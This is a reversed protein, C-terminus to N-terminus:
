LEVTNAAVSRDLLNQGVFVSGNDNSLHSNRITDFEALTESIKIGRDKLDSFTLTSSAGSSNIRISLGVLGNRISYNGLPLGGIEYTVSRSPESVSSSMNRVLEKMRTEIDAYNPLCSDTGDNNKTNKLTKIKSLNISDKYNVDNSLVNQNDSFDSVVLELKPVVKTYDIKRDHSVYVAYGGDPGDHNGHIPMFIDAVDGISIKKCRKSKLGLDMPTSFQSLYIDCKTGLISETPHNTTRVSTNFGSPMAFGIYLMDGLSFPQDRASPHKNIFNALGSAPGIQIPRFPESLKLINSIIKGEGLAPEWRVQREVLVFSDKVTGQNSNFKYIPLSTYNRAKKYKSADFGFEPSADADFLPMFNSFDLSSSGQKYFTANDNQCKEISPSASSYNEYWHIFFKGLFGNGITNEWNMMNALRSENQSAVFLYPEYKSDLLREKVSDNIADSAVLDLFEPSKNDYVAKLTMSLLPLSYEGNKDATIPKSHYGGYRVKGLGSSTRSSSVLSQADKASRIKYIEFWAIMERLVASYASFTSLYEILSYFDSESTSGYDPMLGKVGLDKVTLPRCIIKKGYDTSCGYNRVTGEQGYYLIGATTKTHEISSDERKSFITSEPLTPLFNIGVTLDYLIITDNDFMFSFGFLACWTKLVERLSGTYSARYERNYQGNIEVRLSKLRIAALLEDFSYDVNFIGLSRKKECDVSISQQAQLNSSEPCPNCPDLTLESNFDEKCPDISSGVLIMWSPINALNVPANGRVYKSYTKMSKFTLGQNSLNNPGYLESFSKSTPAHKGNLGIYYKDLIFSGDTYTVELLNEGSASFIRSSKIPYGKFNVSGINLFSPARVTLNPLNLSNNPDVYTVTMKGNSDVTPASYEVGYIKLNGMGSVRITPYPYQAM